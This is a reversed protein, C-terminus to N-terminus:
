AVPFSTTTVHGLAEDMETPNRRGDLGFVRLTSMGNGRASGVLEHASHRPLHPRRARSRDRLVLPRGARAARCALSRGSVRASAATVIAAVTADATERCGLYGRPDPGHDGDHREHRKPLASLAEYIAESRRFHDWSHLEQSTVGIQVFPSHLYLPGQIRAPSYDFSRRETSNDMFEAGLSHGRQDLLVLCSRGDVLQGLPELDGTLGRGLVEVTLVDQHAPLSQIRLLDVLSGLEVPLVPRHSSNAPLKAEVAAGHPPRQACAVNRHPIRM